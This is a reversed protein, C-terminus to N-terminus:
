YHSLSRSHDHIACDVQLQIKLFNTSTTTSDIHKELAERIANESTALLASSMLIASEKCLTRRRKREIDPAVDDLDHLWWKTHTFERWWLMGTNLETTKYISLSEIIRVGESGRRQYRCRGCYIQSFCRPTEAFLIIKKMCVLMSTFSLCRKKSTICRTWLM